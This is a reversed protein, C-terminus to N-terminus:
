YFQYVKEKDFKFGERLVDGSALEGEAIRLRELLDAKEVEFRKSRQDIERHM